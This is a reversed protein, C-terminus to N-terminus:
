TWVFNVNDVEVEEESEIIEQLTPASSLNTEPKSKPLQEEMAELLLSETNGCATQGTVELGSLQLRTADIESDFKMGRVRALPLFIKLKKDIEKRPLNVPRTAVYREWVANGKKKTTSKSLAAYFLEPFFEAKYARLLKTDDILLGAFPVLDVDGVIEELKKYLNQVRECQRYIIPMAHAATDASSAFEYCLYFDQLGKWEWVQKLQRLMQDEIVTLQRELIPKLVMKVMIRRFIPCADFFAMIKQWGFGRVTAEYGTIGVADCLTRLQQENRARVKELIELNTDEAKIPPALLGLVHILEVYLSYYKLKSVRLPSEPICSSRYWNNDNAEHKYVFLAQNIVPHNVAKLVSLYYYIVDEPRKKMELNDEVDFLQAAVAYAVHTDSPEQYMYKPQHREPTENACFCHVSEEYEFLFKLINKPVFDIGRLRAVNKLEQIGAIACGPVYVDRTKGNNRVKVNFDFRPLKPDELKVIEMHDYKTRLWEEVSDIM